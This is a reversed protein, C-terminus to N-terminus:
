IPQRWQVLGDFRMETLRVSREGNVQPIAATCWVIGKVRSLNLAVDYDHADIDTFCSNQGGTSFFRQTGEDILTVTTRIGTGKDEPEVQDVGFIMVVNSDADAPRIQFRLRIGRNGPRSMGECHTNEATGTIQGNVSGHLEGSIVPQTSSPCSSNGAVSVAPAEVDNKAAPKQCGVTLLPLLIILSNKLNKPTVFYASPQPLADIQM